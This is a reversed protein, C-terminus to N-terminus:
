AQIHNHATFIEIGMIKFPMLIEIVNVLYKCFIECAFHENTLLHSEHANPM